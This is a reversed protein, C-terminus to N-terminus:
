KDLGIKKTRFKTIQNPKNDLSNIVKQYKM